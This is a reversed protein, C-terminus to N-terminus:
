GHVAVVVASVMAVVVASVMAMVVYAVIVMVSTMMMHAAEVTVM